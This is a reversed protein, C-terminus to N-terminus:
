AAADEGKGGEVELAHEGGDLVDAPGEAAGGGAEDLADVDEGADEGVGVGGSPRGAGAAKGGGGRADRRDATGAQRAGGAM